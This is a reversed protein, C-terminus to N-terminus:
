MINATIRVILKGAKLDEMNFKRISFMRQITFKQPKFEKKSTKFTFTILSMSDQINRQGIAIEYVHSGQSLVHTWVAGRENSCGQLGQVPPVGVWLLRGWTREATTVTGIARCEDLVNLTLSARPESSSGQSHSRPLDIPDENSWNLSPRMKASLSSIGQNLLVVWGDGLPLRKRLKLKKFTHDTM